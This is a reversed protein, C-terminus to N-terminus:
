SSSANGMREFAFSAFTCFDIRRAVSDNRWDISRHSQDQRQAMSAVISCRVQGVIESM